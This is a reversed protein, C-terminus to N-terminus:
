ERIQARTKLICKLMPLVDRSIRVKSNSQNSWTIPVEVIVFGKEHAKAILETDFAFGDCAITLSHWVDRRFVKCGCQFDKIRTDLLARALLSYISGSVRRSLPQPRVIVSTRLDRSGVALDAGDDITAAVRMLEKPHISGDGDIFGLVDGKALKLGRKVAAGKGTLKDCSSLVVDNNRGAFEQVINQTGDTSADEAVILEVGSFVSFAELLGGIHDAENHAPIVVSLM